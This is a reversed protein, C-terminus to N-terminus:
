IRGGRQGSREISPLPLRVVQAVDVIMGDAGCHGSV